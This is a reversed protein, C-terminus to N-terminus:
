CKSSGIAEQWSDSPASFRNECLSFYMKQDMTQLVSSPHSSGFNLEQMLFFVNKSGDFFRDLRNTRHDNRKKINSALMQFFRGSTRFFRHRTRLVSIWTKCFSFYMEQGTSSGIWNTRGIISENKKCQQSAHLHASRKESLSLAVTVWTSCVDDVRVHVRDTVHQLRYRRKM